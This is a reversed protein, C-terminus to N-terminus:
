PISLSTAATPCSSSFTNATTGGGFQSTAGNLQNTAGLHGRVNAGATCRIGFNLNNVTTTNPLDTYDVPNDQGLQVSSNQSTNIGNCCTSGLTFTTGNGNITNSSLEAHGTNFVGVGDDGNNIITNGYITAVAGTVNIGRSGNLQITNPAVPDSTLNYGIRASAGQQVLIGHNTNNHINNNTIVAFSADQVIIGDSASGGAQIDNSNIVANGGREIRMAHSTTGIITFGQITIGKGRVVLTTGSASTLTAGGSGIIAVRMTDNRITINETCTGTVNITTGPTASNIATQLVQGPCAVNVQAEAAPGIFLIGVPLFYVAFWYTVLYKKM